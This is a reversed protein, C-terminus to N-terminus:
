KRRPTAVREGEELGSLVELMGPLVERGCRIFRRGTGFESEVWVINLQGFQVVRDAPVLLLRETGAPVLLRAYMGPLLSGDDNVRAKVMFSRSGPDAAPVLEEIHAPMTRQLSPIEVELAQGLELPLALDERVAAEIWMSSPNYLALLKDGPAATDGPEAFREVVRGDIPSRIQTFSLAVEAERVAQRANAMDATLAAFNAEAEDLAAASILKQEYLRRTRDLSQRAETLRASIARARDAAQQLRSEVDGSELELLLQGQSVTDGARVKIDTIRALTRSSITTAQRAGIGAPVPEVLPVDQARVPFADETREAAARPQTGPEIRDSFYGAMWAIVLLLALVAALPLLWKKIRETKSPNM